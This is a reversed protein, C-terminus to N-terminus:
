PGARWEEGLLYRAWQNVDCFWRTTAQVRRFPRRPKVRNEPEAKWVELKRAYGAESCKLSYALAARRVEVGRGVTLAVDVREAWPICERNFVGWYRGVSGVEEMTEKSLYKAAYATVGSWSQVEEVRTGAKLHRRDCSGVVEYWNVSLWEKFTVWDSEELRRLKALRETLYAVGDKQWHEVIRWERGRRDVRKSEVTEIPGKDPDSNEVHPESHHLVGDRFIERRVLRRGDEIDCWTQLMFKLRTQHKGPDEWKEPVNWILLHFHPAIKGVNEGSKRPVLELRWLAAAQPHVRRLRKLLAELHEKWVEPNTPFQDPYTFAVFFPLTGRRIKNTTEMLRNRSRPGFPGCKGRKGGGRKGPRDRDVPLCVRALSGGKWLELSATGRGLSRKWEGLVELNSRNEARPPIHVTSM